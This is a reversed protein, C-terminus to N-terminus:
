LIIVNYNRFTANLRLMQVVEKHGRETAYQLSTMGLADMKNPDAGRDLLLQVVEQQGHNAAWHLPTRGDNDEKNLQAGRDLLVKIVDKYQKTSAFHLPTQGWQNTMNPDAGRELLMQVVYKSNSYNNVAIHLATCGNKDEKNPQAGGNLLMHVVGTHGSMVAMHLPIDGHLSKCNPDAGGELLLQFIERRTGYMYGAIRLLPSYGKGDKHNPDAGADLLVKVVDKHGCCAAEILPTTPTKLFVHDSSKYPLCNLDVWGGSTIIRKVEELNGARSAHWLKGENEKKRLMRRCWALYPETSLMGSWTRNVQLCAQFSAYDLSCFIEELIHPVNRTFLMEFACQDKISGGDM